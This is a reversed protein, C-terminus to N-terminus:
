WGKSATNECQDAFARTPIPMASDNSKGIIKFPKSTIHGSTVQESRSPVPIRPFAPAGVAVRQKELPKQMGRQSIWRRGRSSVPRGGLCGHGWSAPVMTKGITKSPKQHSTVQHSRIHGPEWAPCRLFALFELTKSYNRLPGIHRRLVLPNTM